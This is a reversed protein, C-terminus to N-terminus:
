YKGFGEGLSIVPESHAALVSVDCRELENYRAVVASEDLKYVALLDRM